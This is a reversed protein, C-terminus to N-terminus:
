RQQTRTSGGGGRLCPPTAWCGHLDNMLGDPERCAIQRVEEGASMEGLQFQSPSLPTGFSGDKAINPELGQDLTAFPMLCRHELSESAVAPFDDVQPGLFEVGCRACRGRRLGDITAHVENVLSGEKDAVPEPDGIGPARLGSLTRFYTAELGDFLRLDDVVIRM